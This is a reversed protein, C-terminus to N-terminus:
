FYGKRFLRPFLMLIVSLLSSATSICLLIGLIKQFSGGDQGKPPSIDSPCESMQETNETADEAPHEASPYSQESASPLETPHETFSDTSLESPNLDTRLGSLSIKQSLIKNDKFYIASTKTPLSLIFEIEGDYSGVPLFCLTAIRGGDESNKEGWFLLRIRGDELLCDFELLGLADGRECSCIMMKAPDYTIDLELGCLLVDQPSLMIKLIFIGSTDDAVGELYIRPETDQACIFTLRSLM